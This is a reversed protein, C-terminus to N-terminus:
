SASSIVRVLTSLNLLPFVNANISIILISEQDEMGMGSDPFLFKRMASPDGM